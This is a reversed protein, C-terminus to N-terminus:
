AAAQRQQSSTAVDPVFRTSDTAPQQAPLQVQYPKEPARAGHPRPQSVPPTATAPVASAAAAKAPQRSSVPQLLQSGAIRAQKEALEQQEWAAFQEQLWSRLQEQQALKDAKAKDKAVRRDAAAQARAHALRTRQDARERALADRAQRADQRQQALANKEQQLMQDVARRQLEQLEARSQPYGLLLGFSDIQAQELLLKDHEPTGPPVTPPGDLLRRAAIPGFCRAQHLYGALQVNGADLERFIVHNMHWGLSDNIMDVDFYIDQWLGLTTFSLRTRALVESSQLNGLIMIRLSDVLRHNKQVKMVRAMQPFARAAIDIHLGGLEVLRFYRALDVVRRDAVRIPGSSDAYASATVYRWAPGHHGRWAKLDKKSLISM